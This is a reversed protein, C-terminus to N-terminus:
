LNNKKLFDETEIESIFPGVRVRYWIGGKQPLNAEVIFANFGLSRLRIVEEEARIKNPWSSVQLYYNKGDYFIRNSVKTDSATLKNMGSNDSKLNSQKADSIENAKKSSKLKATEKKITEFIQRDTADKIPVPSTATRPFDTFDDDTITNADNIKPISQMSSASNGADPKFDEQVNEAPKFKQAVQNANNGNILIFVVVAGVVIFAGFIILFMKGFYSDRSQERIEEDTDSIKKDKTGGRDDVLTIAMRREKESPREEIFEYKAPPGSFEMVVKKLKNREFTPESKGSTIKQKSKDPYSLERELTKELRSFLDQTTKEDDLFDDVLKLDGEKESIDENIMEYNADDREATPIGFEERLEDGWNWEIKEEEPEFQAEESFEEEKVEEEELETSLKHLEEFASNIQEPENESFSEIEESKEDELIKPLVEDIPVISEEAETIEAEVNQNGELSSADDDLLDSISINETTVEDLELDILASFDEVQTTIEIIEETEANKIYFSDDAKRESDSKEEEATVNIIKKLDSKEEDSSVDIISELGSKEDGSSYIESLELNPEEEKLPQEENLFKNYDLRPPFDADSSLLNFNDGFAEQIKDSIREDNFKLDSTLDSLQAKTEDRSGEEYKEPSNYYDDWINFNPIQDSEMLLEKVREEISKKLMAYSTETDPMKDISLPLLPKGVGISFINSDLEPKLNVKPAVDITLYLSRSYPSYDEPLPSFIIPHTLNKASEIKLQFYGVSPVKLTIEEHLIESVKDVFIEFSLEKQSISVGLTDAIKKQLEALKM